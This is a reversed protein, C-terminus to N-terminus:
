VDAVSNDSRRPGPNPARKRYPHAALVDEDLSVGLGPTDPVILNGSEIQWNDHMVSDRLTDQRVYELILFNPIAMGLHAAAATSLPGQPNHPAVQVYYAEAM